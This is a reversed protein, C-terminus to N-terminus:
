RVAKSAFDIGKPLKVNWLLGYNIFFDASLETYFGIIESLKQGIIESLRSFNYGIKQKGQKTSEQSLNSIGPKQFPSESDDM